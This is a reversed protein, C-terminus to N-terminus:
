ARVEFHTGAENAWPRRMTLSSRGWRLSRLPSYPAHAAEPPPCMARLVRQGSDRQIFSLAFQITVKGHIGSANGGCPASDTNAPPCNIVMSIDRTLAASKTRNVSFRSRFPESQHKLFPSPFSLATANSFTTGKRLDSAAATSAIQRSHGSVQTSARLYSM